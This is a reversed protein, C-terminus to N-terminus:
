EPTKGYSMMFLNEIDFHSRGQGHFLELEEKFSEIDIEKPKIVKLDDLEHECDGKVPFISRAGVYEINKTYFKKGCIKCKLELSKLTSQKPCIARM